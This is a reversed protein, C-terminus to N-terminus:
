LKKSVSIIGRLDGIKYNVAKDNPYNSKILEAVEQNVENERGHCLLCAGEIIIPKAFRVFEGKENKVKEIIIEDGTLKEEALMKEFKLLATKEFENPTNLPNRNKFSVRKIDVNNKESYSKTLDLATDSCVSVAQVPGGEQMNAILVSKLEKMYNQAHAALETKMEAPIEREKTSCVTFILLGCIIFINKLKM